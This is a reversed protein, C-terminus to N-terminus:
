QLGTADASHQNIICCAEDTKYELYIKFLFLIMLLIIDRLNYYYYESTYM